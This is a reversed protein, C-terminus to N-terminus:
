PLDTSEAELSCPLWALLTGDVRDWGDPGRLVWGAGTWRADAVRPAGTIWAVVPTGDRPAEEPRPGLVATLERVTGGRRWRQGDPTIDALAGGCRCVRGEVGLHVRTTMLCESCWGILALIPAGGCDGEDANTAVPVRQAAETDREAM